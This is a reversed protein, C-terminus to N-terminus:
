QGFASRWVVSCEELAVCPPERFLMHCQSMGPEVRTLLLAPELDSDIV